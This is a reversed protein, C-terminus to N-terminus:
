ALSAGCNPCKEAATVTSGCHDCQRKTAEVAPTNQPHSLQEDLQKEVLQFVKGSMRATQVAGFLIMVFVIAFVILFLAFVFSFM